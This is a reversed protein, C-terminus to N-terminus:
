IGTQRRCVLETNIAYIATHKFVIIASPLQMSRTKLGVQTNKCIDSSTIGFTFVVNLCNAHPSWECENSHRFYSWWPTDPICQKQFNGFPAELLCSYLILPNHSPSLCFRLSLCLCLSLSLCMCVSVSISVSLCLCVSVPLSLCVSVSLHVSLCVFLSFKAGLETWAGTNGKFCNWNLHAAILAM